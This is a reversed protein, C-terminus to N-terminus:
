TSIYTGRYDLIVRIKTIWYRIICIYQTINFRNFNDTNFKIILPKIYYQTLEASCKGSWRVCVGVIPFWPFVSNECAFFVSPHFFCCVILLVTLRTAFSFRAFNISNQLRPRFRRHGRLFFSSDRDLAFSIEFQFDISKKKRGKLRFSLVFKRAKKENHQAPFITSFAEWSSIKM